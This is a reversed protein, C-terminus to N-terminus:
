LELSIHDFVWNPAGEIRSMLEQRNTPPDRFISAARKKGIGPVSQLDRYPASRLHFPTRFGTVSRSSVESVAIDLYTGVDASHEIGVLVPYSGIQRGFHVRGLQAEVLVGKLVSGDPLLRGLFAPDLDSRVKEKFARFAMELGLDGLMDFTGGKGDDFRAARINIRRLPLGRDLVDKLFRIDGKFSEGTQGPLGGLFNIGPLLLPM